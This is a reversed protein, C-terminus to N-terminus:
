LLPLFYPDPDQGGTVLTPGPEAAEFDVPPSICSEWVAGLSEWALYPYGGAQESPTFSSQELAVFFDEM